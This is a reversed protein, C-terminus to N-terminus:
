CLGHDRFEGMMRRSLLGESKFFAYVSDAPYTYSMVLAPTGTRSTTESRAAVAM